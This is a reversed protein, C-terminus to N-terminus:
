NTQVSIDWQNQRGGWGTPKGKTVAGFLNSARAAWSARTSSLPAIFVTAHLRIFIALSIRKRPEPGREPSPSSMRGSFSGPLLMMGPVSFVYPYFNNRKNQVELEQCINVSCRWLYRYTWSEVSRSMIWCSNQRRGYKLLIQAWLFVQKCLQTNALIHPLTTDTFLHNMLVLM